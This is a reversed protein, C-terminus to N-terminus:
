SRFQGPWRSLRLWAGPGQATQVARVACRRAFPANLLDPIGLGVGVLEEGAENCRVQRRAHSRRAADDLQVAEDRHLGSHGQGLAQDVGSGGEEDNAHGEARVHARLLVEAEHMRMRVDVQETPHRESENAQDVAHVRVQLFAPQRVGVIPQVGDAQHDEHAREDPADRGAGLRQWKDGRANMTDSATSSNATLTKM